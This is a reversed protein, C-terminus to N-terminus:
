RARHQSLRKRRVAYIVFSFLLMLTLLSIVAGNRVAPASYNMEIKHAGAPLAVGRLLYDTLLLRGPQGDVTVEWGPYFIESVVLVTPM